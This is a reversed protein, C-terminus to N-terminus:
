AWTDNGLQSWLWSVSVPVSLNDLGMVAVQELATAILAVAPLLGLRPGDQFVGHALLLIILSVSGMTLTGALSKRQGLVTWSPSTVAPGVLGAMGDAFAMVMVGVAMAAVQDPWFWWTLVTMSLGYGVTGYSQRDVDEIVPLIRIRHNIVALLTASAAVLLVVWRDLQVTWAVLVVPGTGIHVIKRSWEPQGPWRRRVMLSLGIVALLWLFCPLLSWLDSGQLFSPSV